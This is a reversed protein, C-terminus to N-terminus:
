IEKGLSTFSFVVFIAFLFSVLAAGIAIFPIIDLFEM